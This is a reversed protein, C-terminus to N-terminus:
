IKGPMLGFSAALLFPGYIRQRLIDSKEFVCWLSYIPAVVIFLHLGILIYLVLGTPDPTTDLCHSCLYLPDTLRCTPVTVNEHYNGDWYGYTNNIHKPLPHAANNPDWPPCPLVDFPGEETCKPPEDFEAM